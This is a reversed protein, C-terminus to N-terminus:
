SSAAVDDVAVRDSKRLFMSAAEAVMGIRADDGLGDSAAGGNAIIASSIPYKGTLSSFVPSVTITGALAFRSDM